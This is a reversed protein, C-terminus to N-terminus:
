NPMERVFDFSAFLLNLILIPMEFGYDLVPLM